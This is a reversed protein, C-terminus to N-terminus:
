NNLIHSIDEECMSTANAITTISVGENYFRQILERRAQERAKKDVDMLQQMIDMYKM